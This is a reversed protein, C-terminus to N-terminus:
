KDSANRAAVAAEKGKANSISYEKLPWEAKKRDKESLIKEGLEEMPLYPIFQRATAVRKQNASASLGKAKITQISIKPDGFSGALELRHKKDEISAM